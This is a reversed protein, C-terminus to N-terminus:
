PFRIYEPPVATTLWVGNVSRYFRCGDAEMQGAQVILVVPKGHRQGVRRASDEDPSLHVHQRSKSILGKQKISDLFRVATGHYLLEPPTLPDLELDVPISHGQNARIRVGDESFSFRQKDNEAVIQALLDENLSVRAETAKTLLEDVQAWGHRDLRLGIRQPRHRLVLSLFRSLKIYQKNDM